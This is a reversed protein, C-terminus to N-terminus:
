HEFNIKKKITKDKRVEANGKLLVEFFMLLATHHSM